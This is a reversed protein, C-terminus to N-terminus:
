NLTSFLKQSFSDAAGLYRMLLELGHIQQVLSM